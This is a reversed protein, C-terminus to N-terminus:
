HYSSRRENDPHVSGTSSGFRRSIERATVALALRGAISVLTRTLRTALGGGLVFGVGVAAAVTTYPRHEVQHQMMQGAENVMDELADVLANVDSGAQRTSRWLQEAHSRAEDM